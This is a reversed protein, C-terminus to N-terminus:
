PLLDTAITWPDWGSWSVERGMLREVAATM